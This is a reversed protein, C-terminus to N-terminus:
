ATLSQSPCPSISRSWHHPPVPHLPSPRRSTAHPSGPSMTLPNLAVRISTPSSVCSCAIAATRTASSRTHIARFTLPSGTRSYLDTGVKHEMKTLKARRHPKEPSTAAGRHSKEPHQSRSARRQIPKRHQPSNIRSCTAIPPKRWQTKPRRIGRDTPSLHSSEPAWIVCCSGSLRRTRAFPSDKRSDARRSM